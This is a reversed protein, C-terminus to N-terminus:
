VARHLSDTERQSRLEVGSQLTEWIRPVAFILTPSIERMNELVTDTNECFNVTFGWYIPLYVSVMRQAIHSLPLFSLTEENDAIPNAKRLADATWLLDRHTLMAAKHPGTTRSNYILVA